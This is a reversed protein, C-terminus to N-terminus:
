ASGSFVGAQSNSLFAARNVARGRASATVRNGSQTCNGTVEVDLSGSSFGDTDFTITASTGDGPLRVFRGGVQRDVVTMNTEIRCTDAINPNLFEQAASTGPLALLSAFAL